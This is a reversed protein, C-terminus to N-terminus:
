RLPVHPLKLGRALGFPLLLLLAAGAAVMVIMAMLLYAAVKFLFVLPRTM